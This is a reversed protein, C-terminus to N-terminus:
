RSFARASAAAAQPGNGASTCTLLLTAGSLTRMMANVERSSGPKEKFSLAMFVIGFLGVGSAGSGPRAGSAWSSAAVVGTVGASSWGVSRIDSAGGAGDVGAAGAVASEGIIVAALDFVGIRTAPPRPTAIMAPASPKPAPYMM